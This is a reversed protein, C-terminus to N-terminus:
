FERALVQEPAQLVQTAVTLASCMYGGDVLLASFVVELFTVVVQHRCDFDSEFYRM